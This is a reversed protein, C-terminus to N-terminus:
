VSQQNPRRSHIEREVAPKPCGLPRIRQLPGRKGLVAEVIVIAEPLTLGRLGVSVHGEALKEYNKYARLPFRERACGGPSYEM